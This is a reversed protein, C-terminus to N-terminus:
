SAQPPGGFFVWYSSLSVIAQLGRREVEFLLRDFAQFMTENYLVPSLQLASARTVGFGFFRILNFQSEVAQDLRMQVSSLDYLSDELTEWGNYGAFYLSRCANDVFAGSQVRVFAATAPRWAATAVLVALAIGIRIMRVRTSPICRELHLVGM